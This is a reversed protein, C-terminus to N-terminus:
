LKNLLLSQATTAGLSGPVAAVVLMAMVMMMMRLLSYQGFTRFSSLKVMMDTLWGALPAYISPPVFKIKHYHKENKSHIYPFSRPCTPTLLCGRRILWVFNSGIDPIIIPSLNISKHYCYCTHTVQSAHNKPSTIRTTAHLYSLIVEISIAKRNSPLYKPMQLHHITKISDNLILELHLCKVANILVQIKRPLSYHYWLGLTAIIPRRNHEKQFRMQFYDEGFTNKESINVWIWKRFEEVGMSFASHYRHFQIWWTPILTGM